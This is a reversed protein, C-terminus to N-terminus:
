GNTATRRNMCPRVCYFHDYWHHRYDPCDDVRIEHCSDMGEGVKVTWRLVHQNCGEVWVLAEHKTGPEAEEPVKIRLVVTGRHMPGLELTPPDVELGEVGETRVRVTRGVRDCNTVVIRLTATSCRGVYSTCEGLQRPMWCPPPVHCVPKTNAAKKWAEEWGAWPNDMVPARVGTVAEFWEQGWKVQAKVLGMLADPVDGLPRESSVAM